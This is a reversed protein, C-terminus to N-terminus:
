LCVQFLCGQALVQNVEESFCNRATEKSGDTMMNLQCWGKGLMIWLMEQCFGMVSIM